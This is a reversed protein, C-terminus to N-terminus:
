SGAFKLRVHPMEVAARRPCVKRNYRMTGEPLKRRTPELGIAGGGNQAAFKIEGRKAQSQKQNRKLEADRISQAQQLDVGMLSLWDDAGSAGAGGTCCHWVDYLVVFAAQPPWM